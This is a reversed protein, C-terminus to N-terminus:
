VAVATGQLHISAFHLGISPLRFMDNPEYHDLQHQNGRLEKLDRVQASEVCEDLM